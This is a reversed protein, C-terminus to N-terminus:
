KLRRCAVFNSISRRAAATSKIEARRKKKRLFSCLAFAERSMNRLSLNLEGSTSESAMEAGGLKPM